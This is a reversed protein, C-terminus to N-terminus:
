GTIQKIVMGIGLVMVRGTVSRECGGRLIIMDKNLKQDFFKSLIDHSSFDLLNPVKEGRSVQPHDSLGERCVADSGSVDRIRRQM